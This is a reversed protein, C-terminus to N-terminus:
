LATSCLKELDANSKPLSNKYTMKCVRKVWPFNYFYSFTVLKIWFYGWYIYYLFYFKFLFIFHEVKKSDATFYVVFRVNKM